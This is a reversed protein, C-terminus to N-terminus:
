IIMEKTYKITKASIIQKNSKKIRAIINELNQKNDKYIAYFYLPYDIEIAVNHRKGFNKLDFNEREDLEDIIERIDIDFYQDAIVTGILGNGYNYLTIYKLPKFIIDDNIEKEDLFIVVFNETLLKKLEKDSNVIGYVHLFEM